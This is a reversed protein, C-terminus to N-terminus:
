PYTVILRAAGVLSGSDEEPVFEGVYCVRQTPKKTAEGEPCLGVQFSTQFRGKADTTVTVAEATCPEAPALWFTSGCERLQIETHAAFGRGKLTTDTGVMVRHPHAAIKPGTSATASAASLAFTVALGALCVKRSGPM